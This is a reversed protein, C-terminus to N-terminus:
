FGAAHGDKRSESAGFFSKNLVDYKIAQYGGMGGSGVRNQHGMRVLDRVVERSFGSELRVTGSGAM